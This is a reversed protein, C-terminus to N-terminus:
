NMKPNSARGTLAFQSAIQSVERLGSAKVNAEVNCHTAQQWWVEFEKDDQPSSQHEWEVVLTMRYQGTKHNVAAQFVGVLCTNGSTAQFKTVAKIKM